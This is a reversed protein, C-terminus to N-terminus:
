QELRDVLTKLFALANERSANVGNISAYAVRTDTMAGALWGGMEPATFARAAIGDHTQYGQVGHRPEWYQTDSIVQIGVYTEEDQASDWQCGTNGPAGIIGDGVTRGAIRTIEERTFLACPGEARASGGVTQTATADDGAHATDESAQGGADSCGALVLLCGLLAPIRSHTM